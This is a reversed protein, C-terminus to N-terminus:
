FTLAVWESGTVNTNLSIFGCVHCPSLSQQLGGYVGLEGQALGSGPLINFLGSPVYVFCEFLKIRLSRNGMVLMHGERHTVTLGQEVHGALRILSGDVSQSKKHVGVVLGSVCVLCDAWVTLFM